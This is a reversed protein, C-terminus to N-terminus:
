NRREEKEFPMGLLSLLRMAKEDDGCTTVFTVALGRVKDIKGYDIESFVVHESLGLNYNGRGDFASRKVGRFDRLKPLVISFLKDCFGYMREGRLTVMVGIAAGKRLKFGSVSLKAKRLTAKQGTIVMLDAAPKEVKGRDEAAEGVGMSVVVKSLVPCALGNGLEWEKTLLPKIEKKYKEKLRNM